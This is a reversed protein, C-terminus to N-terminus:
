QVLSIAASSSGSGSTVCSSAATTGGSLSVQTGILTLCQGTGNGISAGGSLSVPGNPYYFTGSISTNSAGETLGAGSTRSTSAPGIVVLGQYTGTTPAVLTVNSYGGALCFSLGSCSGSTMTSVGSTVLTVNTGSMGVSAGSCTVDGGGNAGLGVYGNVTYVGAGLITGGATAFFGNIDHQAAASLTMCSGGGSAVNFNGNLQFLSSGGTADAFTTKSGGGAYVANGDSSAGLRFSNATGSGLTLTSGGSNYVGAALMFTSPGGFTLTSTNCLSYHGGGNCASASQGINFTGAGFTTTSGGGTTLGQAINYNGPGFTIATGTNSISGSFNYTTSATGSTNFNLTIGGAMTLNGFNYSGGSPCTFTWTGSSRTGTCSGVTMSASSYNFPLDTGASVSPASPSALAAVTSVRATATSVGSNGALPDATAQKVIGSATIGGCPQSPASSSNYALKKASITTGCPVSVTSNSAVACGPASVTTGGTLTVGSGGASLALVCADTQAGLQAYSNAGIALSSRGTFPALLVLNTTAIRVFVAQSGADRPSTTLNVTVASASIGNLAAVSKAANTMSTSSSTANYALAGAYAALDATRQNEAKTLLGHGLEAVLGAMGILVPIAVASITAVTGKRNRWFASIGRGAPTRIADRLRSLFM